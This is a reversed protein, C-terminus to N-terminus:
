QLLKYKSKTKKDNYKKQNRISLSIFLGVGVIIILLMVIAIIVIHQEIYMVLACLGFSVLTSIIFYALKMADRNFLRLFNFIAGVITYSIVFTAVKVFIECISFMPSQSMNLTVLWVFFNTIKEFLGSTFLFVLVILSFFGIVKDKM